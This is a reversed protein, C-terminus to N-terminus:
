VPLFLKRTPLFPYLPIIFLNVYQDLTQILCVTCAKEVIDIFEVVSSAQINDDVSYKRSLSYSNNNNAINQGRVEAERPSEEVIDQARSAARSRAREVIDEVDENHFQQGPKRVFITIKLFQKM